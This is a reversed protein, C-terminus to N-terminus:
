FKTEKAKQKVYNSQEMKKAPQQRAPSQQGLLFRALSVCWQNAHAKSETNDPSSVSGTESQM